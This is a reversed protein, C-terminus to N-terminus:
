IALYKLVGLKAFYLVAEKKTKEQTATGLACNECM